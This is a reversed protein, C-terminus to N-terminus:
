QQRLRNNTVGSPIYVPQVDLGHRKFARTEYTMWVTAVPPGVISYAVRLPPASARDLGVFDRWVM